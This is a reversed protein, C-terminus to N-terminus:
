AMEKVAGPDRQFAPVFPLGRLPVGALIDGLANRAAVKTHAVNWLSHALSPNAGGYQWLIGRDSLGQIWRSLFANNEDGACTVRPHWPWGSVNLSPESALAWTLGDKLAQGIRAIHGCVDHEAYVAMTAMVAALACSNGCYTGSICDAMAMVRGPGVLAAVPFGNGIAKGFTALDPIPVGSVAQYGGVAARWGTVVEDYVLLAKHKTARERLGELFGADPADYLTPELFIAAVQGKHARLARDVSPLDNFAFGAIMRDYDLPIGERFPQMAMFTSTWGHYGSSLVVSKGTARRAVRIAAESAETGSNVWRVMGSDQVCPIHALLAEAAPIERWSPLSSSLGEELACGVAAVVDSHGYGLPTSCLAMCWDLYDRGEIDRVRSGVAQAYAVPSVGEVYARSRKSLTSAGGPTLAKARALWDRSM